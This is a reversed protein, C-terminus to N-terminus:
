HANCHTPAGPTETTALANRGEEKRHGSVSQVASILVTASSRPPTRLSWLIVHPQMVTRQRVDARGEERAREGAQKGRM